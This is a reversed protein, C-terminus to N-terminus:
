LHSHAIADNVSRILHEREQPTIAEIANSLPLLFKKEMEKEVAVYGLFVMTKWLLFTDTTKQDIDMRLLLSLVSRVHAFLEPQPLEEGSFREISGLMRVYARGHMSPTASVLPHELLRANTMRWMGRGKVVDVRVLGYDLIHSRLKASSKRVGQVRVRLVGFTETFLVVTKNAENTNYSSLVIADTHFITHM